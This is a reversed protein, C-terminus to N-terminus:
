DGDNMIHQVIVAAVNAQMREPGQALLVCLIRRETQGITPHHHQCELSTRIIEFSFPLVAHAKHQQKEFSSRWM